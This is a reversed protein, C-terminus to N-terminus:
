RVQKMTALREDILANRTVASQECAARDKLLEQSLNM